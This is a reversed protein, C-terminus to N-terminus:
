YLRSRTRPPADFHLSDPHYLIPLIFIIWRILDILGRLWGTSLKNICIGPINMQLRIFADLPPFLPLLSPLSLAFLFSHSSPLPSPHSWTNVVISWTYKDKCDYVSIFWPFTQLFKSSHSRATNAINAIDIGRTERPGMVSQWLLLETEWKKEWEM